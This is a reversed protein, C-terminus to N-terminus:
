ENVISAIDEETISWIPEKYLANEVVYKSVRKTLDVLNYYEVACKEEKGVIRNIIQAFRDVVDNTDDSFIKWAGFPKSSGTVGKFYEGEFNPVSLFTKINLGKSKGIEIEKNIKQNITWMSNVIYKGDRKVKPSDADHLVSYNVKFHNLIKSVTVINAKGLCNIVHVCDKEIKGSQMLSKVVTVETEGEVLLNNTSFFFENFYPNCYNLMKLNEKDDLTFKVDDTSFTHVAHNTNPSKEIRIITTHDKTLDIFIPSHTSIMIQWDAHEAITYLSEMASRIASPHLFAEPEELLLIKQTGAGVTKKKVQHRGTEALMKLASWLFTRQLGTGHNSLPALHHESSGLRIFSGSGILKDPEIKSAQPDIQIVTAEPFVKTMEESVMKCSNSLDESIETQVDEALKRIDALLQQVKSNDKKTNQKIADILIELIKKELELPNDLPSIKLPTPIKSTLISDFGGMGGKEYQGTAPNFSFKEGPNDPSPWRYQAKICNKYGLEEDDHIWKRALEGESVDVFVGTIVPKNQIDEKYFDKLKLAAGTSAFAEYASLVTTKGVNNKGILAIINDIKIRIGEPGIGRYNKIILEALKM